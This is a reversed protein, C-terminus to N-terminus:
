GKIEKRETFSIRNNFRFRLKKYGNSLYIDETFCGDTYDSILNKWFVQTAKNNQSNSTYLLWKGQFSNYCFNPKACLLEAFAHAFCIHALRLFIISYSPRWTSIITHSLALGLICSVSVWSYKQPLCPPSAESRNM